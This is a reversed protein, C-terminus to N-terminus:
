LSVLYKKRSKRRKKSSPSLDESQATGSPTASGVSRSLGNGNVKLTKKPERAPQGRAIRSRAEIKSREIEEDQENDSFPLRRSFDGAFKRQFRVRGLYAFRRLVSVPGKRTSFKELRRLLHTRFSARKAM